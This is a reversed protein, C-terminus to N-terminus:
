YVANYTVSSNGGGGRYTSGAGSSISLDLSDCCSKIIEINTEIATVADSIESRIQKIKENMDLTAYNSGDIVIMNALDGSIDNLKSAANELDRIMLAVSKAM